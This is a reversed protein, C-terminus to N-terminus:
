VAPDGDGGEQTATPVLAAVSGDDDVFAGEFRLWRVFLLRAVTADDLGCVCRFGADYLADCRDCWRLPAALGGTSTTAM